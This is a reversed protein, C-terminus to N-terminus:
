REVKRDPLRLMFMSEYIGWGRKRAKGGPAFENLDIEFSGIDRFGLHYYLLHAVPSSALFCPVSENDAQSTAWRILASGVGRGQHTPHVVLTGIDIYTKNSLWEARFNAIRKDFYSRLDTTEAHSENEKPEKSETDSYGVQSFGIWGVTEGTEKAFAKIVSRTSSPWSSELMERLKERLEAEDGFMLRVANDSAFAAVHVNVLSPIDDRSARSLLFTDSFGDTMIRM